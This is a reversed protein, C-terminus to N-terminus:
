RRSALADDDGLQGVADAGLLDDLLDLLEHLGLLELADGVDLVEGVALVAQAQDDLDLVAEVGLRDELLEVALRRQLVGEADVVDGEDVALRAREPQLLHELDEELVAELDHATARAYRRALAASRSCRTSPGARDRDEVDVLDDLHDAGGVVGGRGLLPQDRDEVQGLDLGVVDELHRQAPQRLEGLELELLLLGLECRVISSSSAIRASSFSSRSPRRRRARRPRWPARCGAGCPGARARGAVVTM